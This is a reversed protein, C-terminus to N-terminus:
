KCSKNLGFITRICRLGLPLCWWMGVVGASGLAICGSLMALNFCLHAPIVLLWVSLHTSLSPVFHVKVLAPWRGLHYDRLVAAGDSSYLKEIFDLTQTSDLWMSPVANPDVNLMNCTAATARSFSLSFHSLNTWNGQMIEGVGSAGVANGHLLLIELKPWQGKALFNM